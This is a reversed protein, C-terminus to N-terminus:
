INIVKFNYYCGAFNLVNSFEKRNFKFVVGDCDLNDDSIYDLMYDMTSQLQKTNLNNAVWFPVIDFNLEKAKCLDDKSNGSEGSLIDSAYFTPKDSFTMRGKVSYVGDKKIKYPLNLLKIINLANVDNIQINSLYGDTYTAIMDFGNIDLYATMEKQNSYEVIESVNKCEKLNGGNIEGMNVMSQVDVKCNPSNVFMIGTEDEFEKLDALRIDFNEDDMIPSGNHKSEIAQNLISIMGTMINREVENM